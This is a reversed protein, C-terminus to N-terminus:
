EGRGYVVEAPPGEIVPRSRFEADGWFPDDSTWEEQDIRQDIGAEESLSSSVIFENGEPDAMTVEGIGWGRYRKACLTAGLHQLRNVEGILTGTSPQLWFVTAGRKFGAPAQVLLLYTQAEIAEPLAILIGHSRDVIKASLADCWFAAQSDPDLCGLVPYRLRLTM